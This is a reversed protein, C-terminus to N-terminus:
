LVILITKYMKTRDFFLLYMCEFMDMFRKPFTKHWLQPGVNNKLEEEKLKLETAYTIALLSSILVKGLPTNIKDLTTKNPPNQKFYELAM